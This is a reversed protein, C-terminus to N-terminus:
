EKLFEKQQIQYLYQERVNKIGKPVNKTRKPVSDTRLCNQEMQLMKQAKNWALFFLLFLFAEKLVKSCLERDFDIINQFM